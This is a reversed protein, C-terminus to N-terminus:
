KLLSIVEETSWVHDAVGTEMAPTVRLSQHFESCAAGLEILLKDVTNRAVGTMRSTARISNGEVLCAVVRARDAKSLQNV